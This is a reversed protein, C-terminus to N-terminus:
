EKRAVSGEKREQFMGLLSRGYPRPVKEESERFNGGGSIYVSRDMSEKLRQELPM